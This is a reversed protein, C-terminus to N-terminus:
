RGNGIIVKKDLLLKFFLGNNILRIFTLHTQNRYFKRNKM